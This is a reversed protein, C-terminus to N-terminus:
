SCLGGSTFIPLMLPRQGELAMVAIFPEHLKCTSENETIANNNTTAFTIFPVLM